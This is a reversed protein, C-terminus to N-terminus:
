LSIKLKQKLIILRNLVEPNDRFNIESDRILPAIEHHKGNQLYISTLYFITSPQKPDTNYSELFVSEAEENKKAESLALGYKNLLIANHPFKKCTLKLLEVKIKNHTYIDLLSLFVDLNDNDIILTFINIDDKDVTTNNFLSNFLKLEKVSKEEKDAITDNRVQKPIKNQLYSASDLETHGETTKNSSLKDTDNKFKEYFFNFLNKNGSLIAVNLGHMLISREELMITQYSSKKGDLFMSNLDYAKRCFKEAELLNGIKVYIKAAIMLALPQNGDYRLSESIMKMAEDWKQKEAYDVSLFRYALAKYENKLSVDELSALFYKIALEKEQLVGYTQGLQFAYYGSKSKSYENQLLSLNRKAKEKLADNSINYGVHLIEINSKIIEYNERRLSYEIQEHIAGEFRIKKDNPFLRIYDMLSPRKNVEDISRVVCQYAQKSRTKVLNKLEKVSKKSLREDADLYLIWDGSSHDLAFNRAASFDNIWDFHFIKETYTSAIELTKDTSGTDVIVIENVVDKVSELCDKLYREENKVIM